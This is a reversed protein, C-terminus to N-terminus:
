SWIGLICMCASGLLLAAYMGYRLRPKVLLDDRSFEEAILQYMGIYILMGGSVGNLTGQVAKSTISNPDYGSAIAIGIAIGIPTTITYLFLMAVRKFQSFATIALVSGLALAELGQHIALAIM